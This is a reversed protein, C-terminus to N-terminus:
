EARIVASHKERSPDSRVDALRSSTTRTQSSVCRTAFSLSALPIYYKVDSENEGSPRRKAHAPCALNTRMQSRGEPASLARRRTSDSEMHTTKRWPPLVNAYPVPPRVILRQFTFSRFISPVSLR